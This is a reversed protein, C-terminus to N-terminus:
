YAGKGRVVIWFTKLMIYFDLRISYNEIYYVDYETNQSLPKDSRGSIQWWGTIGQPITLRVRQWPQYQAFLKPLEPRPGVLSLTGRLVNFFQPLEDLSTRRLIKGFKTVRPDDPTKGSIPESSTVEASTVQEKMTRFKYIHIIRGNEGVRKQSLLIPRGDFILILLAVIGMIPLAPLLFLSVFFVDFIRKALRQSQTLAPTKIDLVPMGEFESIKTQHVTMDFFDPIISIKTPTHNLTNIIQNLKDNAYRPLAVFVQDIRHEKTLKELEDISGIIEPNEKQKQSSDDLFGIFTYAVSDLQKLKKRLNLGVPGAGIILIRTEMGRDYQQQRYIIRALVRWSLFFIYSFGLFSVFLSRPLDNDIFYLIATFIAGALLTGNTIFTFEDIVKLTKIGDYVSFFFFTVVWILPFFIFLSPHINTSEKALDVGGVATQLYILYAVQFSGVISALDLTIAILGFNTSFRQVM